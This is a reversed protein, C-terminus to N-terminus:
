LLAERNTCYFIDDRGSIRRCFEEFADWSDNIDFEYSHGWIYFLRPENTELRLFEEGLSIM